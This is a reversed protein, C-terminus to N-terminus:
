PHDAKPDIFNGISCPSPRFLGCSQRCEGEGRRSTAQEGRLAWGLVVSPAVAVRQASALTSTARPASTAHELQLHPALTM